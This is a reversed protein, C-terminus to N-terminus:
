EITVILEKELLEQKMVNLKDLRGKKIDCKGKYHTIYTCQEAQATEHNCIKVLADVVYDFTHFDDNHLILFKNLGDIKSSAEGMKPNNIYDANM